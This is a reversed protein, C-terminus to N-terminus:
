GYAGIERVLDTIRRFDQLSVNSPTSHDTAFIYGGDAKLVPLWERVTEPSCSARNGSPM